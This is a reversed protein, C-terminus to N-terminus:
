GDVGYFRGARPSFRVPRAITTGVTPYKSLNAMVLALLIAHYLATTLCFNSFFNCSYPAANGVGRSGACMKWSFRLAAQGGPRRPPTLSGRGVAIALPPATDGPVSAAACLRAPPDLGEGVFWGSAPMQVYCLPLRLAGPTIGLM